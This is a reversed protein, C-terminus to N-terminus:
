YVKVGAARLADFDIYAGRNYHRPLTRRAALAYVLCDLGENRTNNKPKMWVQLEKSGKKILVKRESILQRPYDVPTNDPNVKIRELSLIEAVWDKAQNTAIRFHGSFKKSIPDSDKELGNGICTAVVERKYAMPVTRALGQEVKDPEFNRDIFVKDPKVAVFLRAFDDWEQGSPTRPFAQHLRIYVSDGQYWEVVSVEIRNGQVDAGMTIADPTGEYPCQRNHITALLSEDLERLIPKDYPIALIQQFVTRENGAEIHEEIVELTREIDAFPSYFQNLHFSAHGKIEPRDAKWEGARVMAPKDWPQIVQGCSPCYMRGQQTHELLLLMPELCAQCPVWFRQQNGSLFLNEIPSEGRDVPTSLWIHKQRGEFTHARQRIVDIPDEREEGYNYVDIEDSFTFRATAQRLTAPSSAIALECTGGPYSFREINNVGSTQRPNAVPIDPNLQLAPLLKDSRWRKLNPFQPEVFMMNTPTNCIAYLMMWTVVETKGLQSSVMLTIDHVEPDTFAQLIARQYPFLRVPGPTSAAQGLVINGEVWDCIDPYADQHRALSIRRAGTENVM